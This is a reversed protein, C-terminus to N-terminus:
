ASRRTIDLRRRRLTLACLRRGRHRRKSDKPRIKIIMINKASQIISFIIKAIFFMGLSNLFCFDNLFLQKIQFVISFSTVNKIM